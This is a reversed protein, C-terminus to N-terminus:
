REFTVFKLCIVVIWQKQNRIAILVADRVEPMLEDMEPDSVGWASGDLNHAYEPASEHDPYIAM